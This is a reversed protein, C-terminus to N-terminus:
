CLCEGVFDFSKEKNEVKSKLILTGKQWEREEGNEEKKEIIVKLEFDPNSYLYFKPLGKTEKLEVKQLIGNVSIFSINAFDNVYIFKGAKYDEENNSFYCACGDIESPLETFSTLNFGDLKSEQSNKSVETVSQKRESCSTLSLCCIGIIFSFVLQRM